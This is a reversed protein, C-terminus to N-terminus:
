PLDPRVHRLVDELAAFVRPLNGDAPADALLDRAGVALRLGGFPGLEVPQGLLVGHSALRHYIPRLAAMSLNRNRDAPDRVGFTFITPV